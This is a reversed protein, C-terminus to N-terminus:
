KGQVVFTIPQRRYANEAENMVIAPIWNPSNKIVRIAEEEMGFGWKTEAMVGTLMGDKTVTFRVMVQYTGGPAGNKEATESKLKKELYRM